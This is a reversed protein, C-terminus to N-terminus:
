LHLHHVPQPLLPTGLLGFLLLLDVLLLELLLAEIGLSEFDLLDFVGLKEIIVLVELIEDGGRGFLGLLEDGGELISLMLLNKGLSSSCRCSKAYELPPLIQPSLACTLLIREIPFSIIFITPLFIMLPSKFRVLIDKGILAITGLVASTFEVIEQQM